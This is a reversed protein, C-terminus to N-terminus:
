PCATKLVCGEYCANTYSVVYPGDCPPPAINCAAPGTCNPQGTACHNFHICCGAPACGCAGSPQYVSHCDSRANCSQEDTLQPCPAMQPCDLGCGIQPDTTKACDVFIMGGTCTPCYDTRCDKRAMCQSEGLGTCSAGGDTGGPSGDGTGGDGGLPLGDSGCGAVLLGLLALSRM